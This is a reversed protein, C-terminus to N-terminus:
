VCKPQEYLVPISYIFTLSERYDIIRYVYDCKGRPIFVGIATYILTLAEMKQNLRSVKDFVNWEDDAVTDVLELVCPLFIKKITFM